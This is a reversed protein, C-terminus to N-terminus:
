NETRRIVTNKEQKLIKQCLYGERVGYSSITLKKTKLKRSIYRLIMYGPIITHIREPDIKLIANAASRKDGTLFDGVKKLDESTMTNNGPDVIELYRAFKLVSRATGGTCILKSYKGSTELPQKDIEHKIAHKIRKFSHKGPLIHKVCDKYLKLSGMRYSKSLLIRGKEFLVIETSAGGIDIFAGSSVSLEQLIGAYGLMAEEEGTIVDVNFGTAKFIKAVTEDTNVVNRLSATAFVYIRENIGLSQLTSKFEMISECALDIGVDSICGNEVYGALGAMKKAKFLIKFKGNKVKYVTLRISNSGIDIVSYKM